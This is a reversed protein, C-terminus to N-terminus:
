ERCRLVGADGKMGKSHHSLLGLVDYASGKAWKVAAARLTIPLSVAFIANNGRIEAPVVQGLRQVVIGRVVRAFPAGVWTGSNEVGM